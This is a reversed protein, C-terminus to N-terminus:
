PCMGSRIADEGEQVMKLHLACVSFVIHQHQLDNPRVKLGHEVFFWGYYLLRNFGEHTLDSESGGKEVIAPDNVRTLLVTRYISWSSVPPIWIQVFAIDCELDCIKVSFGLFM